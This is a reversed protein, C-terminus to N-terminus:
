EPKKVKKAYQKVVGDQLHARGEGRVADRSGRWNARLDNLTEKVYKPRWPSLGAVKQGGYEVAEVGLGALQPILVAAAERGPMMMPINDLLANTSLEAALRHHKSGAAEDPYIRKGENSLVDADVGIFKKYIDDGTGTGGFSGTRKLAALIETLTM